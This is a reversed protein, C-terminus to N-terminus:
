WWFAAAPGQSRIIMKNFQRWSVHGDLFVINGGDPRRQSGVHAPRGMSGTLQIEFTNTSAANSITADAVLERETPSPLYELNGITIPSPTLRFNINSSILGATRPFTVAYGIATYGQFVQGDWVVDKNARAWSPCYLIDRTFGERILSDRATDAL